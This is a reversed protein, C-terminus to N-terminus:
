RFCENNYINKESHIKGLLMKKEFKKINEGM